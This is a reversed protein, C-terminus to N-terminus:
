WTAAAGRYDIIRAGKAANCTRCLLQLNDLSNTGGMSRPVIHDVTLRVHPERQGCALCTRAYLARLHGIARKPSVSPGPQYFDPM